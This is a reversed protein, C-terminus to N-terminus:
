QGAPKAQSLAVSGRHLEHLLNAIREDNVHVIM